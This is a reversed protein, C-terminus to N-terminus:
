IQNDQWVAPIMEQFDLGSKRSLNATERQQLKLYYSELIKTRVSLSIHTNPPPTYFWYTVSDVREASKACLLGFLCHFTLIDSLMVPSTPIYLLSLALAASDQLVIIGIKVLLGRISTYM